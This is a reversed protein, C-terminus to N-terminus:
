FALIGLHEVVEKEDHEEEWEFTPYIAFEEVYCTYDKGDKGWHCSLPGSLTPLMRPCYVGIARYRDILRSIEQLREEWMTHVSAVKLVYRDDLIYHFRIDNEDRSTDYVKTLNQFSLGFHELIGSIELNDVM